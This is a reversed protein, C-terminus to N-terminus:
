IYKFGGFNKVKLGMIANAARNRYRKPIDATIADINFNEPL